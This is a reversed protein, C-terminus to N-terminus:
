WYGPRRHRRDEAVVPIEDASAPYLVVQVFHNLLSPREIRIGAASARRAERAPETPEPAPRPAYRTVRDGAGKGERVLIERSAMDIDKVRLSLAERLRLGAGYLLEAVLRPAVKLQLLLRAVEDSALGPPRRVSRKARDIADLWM